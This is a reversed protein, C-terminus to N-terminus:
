EAKGEKEDGERTHVPRPKPALAYLVTGVGVMASGIWLERNGSSGGIWVVSIVLSVAKRLALVLVVSLSSVRATLRNVGSVCVLQTVVNLTLPIWFSPISFDVRSPIFIVIRKLPSTIFSPLKTPLIISHLFKPLPLLPLPPPSISAASTMLPNTAANPHSAVGFALSLGEVMSVRPSANAIDIQKKLDSGVFAFMPLALFHLFFMGEEWHQRGYQGYTKEQSFGLFTSLVLAATLMLIGVTYQMVDSASLADAGSADFSSAAARPKSTNAGLTTAIGIGVSVLLVSLVQLISYRKGMVLWGMLMNVVLGGSRFVIHVAMPVRYAFAFNNLLSVGLFLVVQVLWRRLPIALPKPRISTIRSLVSSKAASRSSATDSSQSRGDSSKQKTTFRSKLGFVTVILYQAFTILSGSHPNDSTTWELAWANSCCGGFILTFLVLWQGASTQLIASIIGKWDKTASVNKPTANSAHSESSSPAYKSESATKTTRQRLQSDAM